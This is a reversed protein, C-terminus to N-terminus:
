LGLCGTAPAINSDNVCRQFLGFDSQDADDDGDLDADVCEPPLPALPSSLCGILHAMDVADVDFDHDFDAPHVVGFTYVADGGPTGDGSPLVPPVGLEGDLAVCNTNVADEVRVTWMKSALPSPTTLTITFTAPDYQVSIPVPINGADALRFDGPQYSIAQDFQLQVQTVDGAVFAGPAPAAAVLHPPDQPDPAGPVYAVQTAAGRLIWTDPDFAVGTAPASVPLSYWQEAADNWIVVTQPGSTTDLRIDIPMAMIPFPTAFTDQYQRVYLRVLNQGCAQATEWGYEYYPAGGAYIWENFFWDLDQGSVAEIVAQFDDIGATGGEYLSRYNALAQFFHADGVVHRLMHMVWQGKDYVVGTSFILSTTDINYRYVTGGLESTTDPRYTNLHSLYAAHSGGPRREYYLSEAYRAWGENVWVHNWTKCTISNGWWSHALEHVNRREVFNGQSTMTQHELGFPTNFQAIGYKENVFPYQGFTAPDSLTSIMEVLNSLQSLASSASEPYLYLEVPMSGGPYNYTWVTKAYNTMAVCVGYATNPYNSLWRTRKRNGSLTDIGQLTGNSAVTMWNPATVWVDMSFKDDLGTRNEKCPWWRHAYFPQSLSSVIATSPSGHTEFTFADNNMSGSSYPVGNYSVKVQFTQGANYTGGLNIVIQDSGSPRSYAAASGNVLVSSVTMNRYLDLTFQDLGNTKSTVDITNSGALLNPGLTIELDLFCHTMDTDAQADLLAPAITSEGAAQAEIRAIAARAFGCLGDKEIEEDSCAPESEVVRQARLVAPLDGGLVAALGAVIWYTSRM